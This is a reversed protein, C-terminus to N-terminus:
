GTGEMVCSKFFKNPKASPFDVGVCHRRIEIKVINEPDAANFRYLDEQIILNYIDLSSLPKNTRELVEIIAERITRRKM